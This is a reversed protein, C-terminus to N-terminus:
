TDYHRVTIELSCSLTKLIEYFRIQVFHVKITTSSPKSSARYYQSKEIPRLSLNELIIFIFRNSKLSEAVNGVLM